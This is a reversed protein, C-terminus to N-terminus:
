LGGFHDASPEYLYQDFTPAAMVPESVKESGSPSAGSLLDSLVYVDVGLDTDQFLAYTTGDGYLDIGTQAATQNRIDVGDLFLAEGSDGNIVLVKHDNAPVYADLSNDGLLEFIDAFTLTLSDAAIKDAMDLQDVNTLQDLNSFDVSELALKKEFEIPRFDEQALRFLDDSQRNEDLKFLDIYGVSRIAVDAETSIGFPADEYFSGDSFALQFDINKADYFGGSSGDISSFGAGNGGLFGPASDGMGYGLFDEPGTFGVVGGSAVVNITSTITSSNIEGDNIRWTITRTGVASPSVSFNSYTISELAAEYQAKTANGSLTLVGTNSDWSGTITSGSVPTFALSDVSGDFGSSISITASEIDVDDVDSVVLTSDIVIDPGSLTFTVSQGAGALVPADNVATVGITSTIASSDAAGDNVVWSVTRSGNNPNDTNTNQYTVTELAAEYQAKTANGSLTLVGNIGDWSGTITSGSVPTFALVDESNVFGSSITITANALNADDDDSLSLASDIVAASDGEAFSLTGGADTLTPSANFRIFSTAASGDTDGDNISWTITRTGVTPNASSNSYIISELAAEYQAKTANGSLILVGSSGDWLGTIESTNTFALVDESNVFGSSITITAGEIVVDDVDSVALSSDIVTTYSSTGTSSTGTSSTGTSSTGGEVNPIDDLSFIVTGGAGALVPADNVGTVTILLEASASLAGDTITYTFVDVATAGAALGDVASATTAYSYQGDANLTLVGYAGVLTSGIVGQAGGTAAVNGTRISSVTLADGDVDADGGLVSSEAALGIVGNEPVENTNAVAVPADNVAGVNVTVTAASTADATGDNVIYTFDAAGAYDANPTFTVTGDANLVATGNSGSTVSSLSLDSNEVDTDNGVLQAATYTEPTDETADLTDAVAVPTDNVAGWM